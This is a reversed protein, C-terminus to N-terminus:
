GRCEENDWEVGNRKGHCCVNVGGYVRAVNATTGICLSPRVRRVPSLPPWLFGVPERRPSRM